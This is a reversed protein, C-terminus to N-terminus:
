KAETCCMRGIQLLLEDNHTQGYGMERIRRLALDQDSNCSLVRFLDFANYPKEPELDTSTTWVMLIPIGDASETLSASIGSEKGPRTWDDGRYQEWGASTLLQPIIRAGDRKFSEIPKDDYSTSTSAISYSQRNEVAKPKPKPKPREDFQKAVRWLFERQEPTIRPISPLEPGHKSIQRYSYTAQDATHFFTSPPAVILGGAGRSEIRPKGISPPLAIRQNRSVVDCLYYVHYGGKASKAIPLQSSVEETEVYWWPFYIHADSDFDLVELGDSVPGCICCFPPDVRGFNTWLSIQGRTPRKAHFQDYKRLAPRKEVPQLPQYHLTIPLVCRGAAWWKYLNTQEVPNSNENTVALM